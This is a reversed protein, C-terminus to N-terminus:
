ELTEFASYLTLSLEDLFSFSLAVTEQFRITTTSAGLFSTAFSATGTVYTETGFNVSGLVTAGIGININHTSKSEYHFLAELDVTGGSVANDSAIPVDTIATFTWAM